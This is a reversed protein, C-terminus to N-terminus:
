GGATEKDSVEVLREIAARYSGEKVLKKVDPPLNEGILFEVGKYDKLAIVDKELIGRIIKMNGISVSGPSTTPVDSDGASVNLVPEPAVEEGPDPAPTPKAAPTKPRVRICSVTKGFAQCETPFLTITKGVWGRAESGHLKAITTANTKNLVLKKDTKKFMLVPKDEAGGDAMRLNDIKVDRITLTVDKDLFEESALFQTPFMLKGDLLPRDSM